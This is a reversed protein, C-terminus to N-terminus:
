VVFNQPSIMVNKSCIFLHIRILSKGHERYGNFTYLIKLAVPKTTDLNLQICPSDSHARDEIDYNIKSIGIRCQWTIAFYKIMILDMIRIVVQHKMVGLARFFLDGTEMQRNDADIKIPYTIELVVAGIITM